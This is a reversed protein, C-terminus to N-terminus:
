WLSLLVKKSVGSTLWSGSSWQIPANPVPGIYWACGANTASQQQSFATTLNLIQFSWSMQSLISDGSTGKLASVKLAQAKTRAEATQENNRENYSYVSGNYFCYGPLMKEQKNWNGLSIFERGLIIMQEKGNIKVSELKCPAVNNQVGSLTVYYSLARDDQTWKGEVSGLNSLVSVGVVKTDMKADTQSLLTTPLAGVTYTLVSSIDVAVMMIFWSLQVFVGATLVKKILEGPTKSKAMKREPDIVYYLIEYLFIFALVFNALNKVITWVKWLPADLNLYAGYVLNNDMALGALAVLPWLLLYAWQSLFRFSAMTESILENETDAQTKIEQSSSYGDATALAPIHPFVLFSAGVLLFGKLINKKLRCIGWLLDKWRQLM